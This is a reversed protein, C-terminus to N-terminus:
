LDGPPSSMKALQTTQNQENNKTTISHWSKTLGCTQFYLLPYFFFIKDVREDM